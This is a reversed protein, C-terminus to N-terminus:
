KKNWRRCFVNTTLLKEVGNIELKSQFQFTIILQKIYKTSRGDQLKMLKQPEM